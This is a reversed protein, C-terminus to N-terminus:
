TKKGCARGVVDFLWALGMDLMAAKPAIAHLRYRRLPLPPERAVIGLRSAQMAVFRRPLAAILDTEAVVALAFSFNPVTLAVRRSLGQKALAEDVFGHADGTLSVVLHQVACFRKLTPGSAFPHGVRMAIVFDEEYLQRRFFRAPIHTSPLIAMDM